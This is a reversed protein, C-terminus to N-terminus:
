KLIKIMLRTFFKFWKSGLLGSFSADGTRKIVQALTPYIHIAGSLSEIKLGNNKAIVYEHLIGGANAGAIHAGLIRGKKDCVVKALGEVERETVARDNNKYESRYVSIKGHKMSAETETLGMRALEPNTFTCWPVASYDVKRKFPMLANGAAIIAQYEAMHSFQYPGAVDGAAYINKATTRLTSDVKISKSSYEIGAKELCLGEVNASRGVAVLVKETLVTSRVNKEDELTISIKDGEEEFKVAKQGTKIDIGEDSFTDSVIRSVEEDERFLLRDVMEIITVKVGLRSFAQALEMGIPGGGLVALSGPLTELDFINENTLYGTTELGEIPPVMPHSGTSVIFRKATIKNGNVQVAHRDLFSPDGFIVKIGREEFVGAPHHSSIEETMERVSPLVGDVDYTVDKKSTIGYKSINKAEHLSRAAKLIAKSPVCGYWTCDGGLKSKEILATKAGLSSTATSAVLGAAGGGLVVVDYDYKM